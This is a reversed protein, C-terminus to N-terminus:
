IGKPEEIGFAKLIERNNKTTETLRWDGEGGVARLTSLSQLVNRVTLDSRKSASVTTEMRVRIMLAATRVFLRGRAADPDGTGTRGGRLDTKFVDYAKEVVERTDYCRMAQEWTIGPSALLVFSGARNVTRALAKKKLTLRMGAEDSYEMDLYKAFAGAKKELAEQPRRHVTGELKGMIENLASKLESVSAEAARPDRCVYATVDGGERYEHGDDACVASLSRELVTYPRGGRFRDNDPDGSAEALESLMRKAPEISPRMTTVFRVGREKMHSLNSPTEFGKDMTVILDKGGRRSIDDVMRDLTRMDPVSGPFMEFSVPVGEGDTVLGVNVQRMKEDDRNYGWESWGGMDSHTSVSTIDYVLLGTARQTRREFFEDMNLGAGGIGKLIDSTRQSGMGRRFGLMECIYSDSLTLETDMFPGPVIAQAMALVLIDKGLNGYSSELDEGLRLDKEIKSVLLAGGYNKAYIKEPFERRPVTKKPIIEGTRPDVAGLYKKSSVPNKKGPVRRSTCEYAYRRGNREEYVIAM